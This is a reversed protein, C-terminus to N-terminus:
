VLTQQEKGQVARCKGVCTGGVEHSKRGVTGQETRVNELTSDKIGPTM